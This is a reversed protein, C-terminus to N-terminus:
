NNTAANVVGFITFSRFATWTSSNGSWVPPLGGELKLGKATFASSTLSSLSARSTQLTFLVAEIEGMIRLLESGTPAKEGRVAVSLTVAVRANPALYTDYAPNEVVIGIVADDGPAEAGKVRGAGAEAWAGALKVNEVNAFLAAVSSEIEKAAIM